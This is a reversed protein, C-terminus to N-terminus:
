GPGRKQIEIYKLFVISDACAVLDVKKKVVKYIFMSKYKVVRSVILLNFKLLM